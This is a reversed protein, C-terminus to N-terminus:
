QGRRLRYIRTIGRAHIVYGRVERMRKPQKSGTCRFKTGPPDCGAAVFLKFALQTTMSRQGTWGFDGQM